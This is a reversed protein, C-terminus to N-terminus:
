RFGRPTSRVAFSATDLSAASQFPPLEFRWRNERLPVAKPVSASAGRLELAPAGSDCLCDLAIAQEAFPILPTRAYGCDDFPFVGEPIHRIM